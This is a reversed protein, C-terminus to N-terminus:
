SLPFCPSAREKETEAAEQFRLSAPRSGLTSPLEGVGEEYSVSNNILEPFPPFFLSVSLSGEFCRLCGM